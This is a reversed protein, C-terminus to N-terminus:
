KDEREEKHDYFEPTYYIVQTGNNEFKFPVFLLNNLAKKVEDQREKTVYFLLFGGGGAGLLKGGLAGASIGRDYLSNIYESTINSGTSKKLKWTKDLLKGFDDINKNEDELIEQADDVLALLETLEKEKNSITKITSKQIESSFRSIGTYFLLLNDNLKNKRFESIHIPIV